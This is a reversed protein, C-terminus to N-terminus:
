VMREMREIERLAEEANLLGDRVDWKKALADAVRESAIRALETREAIIIELRDLAEQDRRRQDRVSAQM